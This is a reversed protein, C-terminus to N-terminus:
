QLVIFTGLGLGGLVGGLIGAWKNDIIFQEFYYAVFGGIAGLALPVSGLKAATLAIPGFSIAM